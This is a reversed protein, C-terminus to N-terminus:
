FSQDTRIVADAFASLLWIRKLDHDSDMEKLKDIVQAVRHALLCKVIKKGIAAKYPQCHIGFTGIFRRNQTKATKKLLVTSILLNKLYELLLKRTAVKKEALTRNNVARKDFRRTRRFVSVFLPIRLHM